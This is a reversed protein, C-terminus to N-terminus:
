DRVPAPRPETRMEEARGNSRKGIGQAPDIDVLSRFRRFRERESPADMPLLSALVSCIGDEASLWHSIRIEECPQVSVKSEDLVGTVRCGQSLCHCWRTATATATMSCPANKMPDSYM